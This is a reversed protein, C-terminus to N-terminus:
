MGIGFGSVGIAASGSIIRTPAVNPNGSSGSGPPFYLINYVSSTPENEVYIGGSSDVWLRSQIQSNLQTNSGSIVAIPPADGTAGAAFVYISPTGNSLSDTLVYIRGQGDVGVAQPHGINDTPGGIIASPASAGPPYVLVNGAPSPQAVLNTTENAVYVTGNAGVASGFIKTLGPTIGETLTWLPVGANGGVWSNAAFEQISDTNSGGGEVYINNSGDLKVDRVTQTALGSLTLFGLMPPNPGPGLVWFRSGSGDGVFLDGSTDTGVGELAGFYPESITYCPAPNGNDNSNLVYVQRVQLNSTPPGVVFLPTGTPCPAPTPPPAPTACSTNLGSDVALTCIQTQSLQGPTGLGYFIGVDDIAGVLGPFNYGTWADAGVQWDKSGGTPLCDAGFSTLPSGDVSASCVGGAGSGGNVELVLMHPTNDTLAVNNYTFKAFPPITEFWGLHGNQVGFCETYPFCAIIHFQSSSYVGNVFAVYSTSYWSQGVIKGQGYLSSGSTNFQYATGGDGALGPVGLAVNQPRSNLLNYNHGSSDFATAGTTEDLKYFALPQWSMIDSAVTSSAMAHLGSGPVGKPLV